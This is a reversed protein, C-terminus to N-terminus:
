QPNVGLIEKWKIMMKPYFLTKELEALLDYEVFDKIKEIEGKIGLKEALEEPSFEFSESIIKKKM